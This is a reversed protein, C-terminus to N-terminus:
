VNVFQYFYVELEDIMRDLSFKEEVLMRGANGMTGVKRPNDLFFEMAASLEDVNEPEILLGVEGDEVIEPINSTRSSIVPKHAAMAEILVIGFGEWLSPLVLANINAMFQPIDDQFGLVYILGNLQHKEIYDEVVNRLMGEGALLLKVNSKKKIVQHFAALLTSIGKREDLQGAFGFVFDDPSVDLKDRLSNSKKFFRKPDIGNYIVKIKAPSLWPTNRLLAKKTAMSNAIIGDAWKNYALRYILHNKLPYDIGRRPILVTEKLLQKAIGALRLEKDMNTLLVDAGFNKIM